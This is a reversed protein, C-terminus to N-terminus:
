DAFVPAAVSSTKFTASAFTGGGTRRDGLDLSSLRNQRGALTSYGEVYFRSRPQYRLSVFGTAPPVGGEVNPPLGNLLSHARIYTFNGTAASNIPSARGAILSSATSVLM